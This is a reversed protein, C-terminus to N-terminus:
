KRRSVGEEGRKQVKKGRDRKYLLRQSTRKNAEESLIGQSKLERRTERRRWAHPEKKGALGEKKEVEEERQQSITKKKNLSVGAGRGGGSRGILVGRERRGAKLRVWVFILL